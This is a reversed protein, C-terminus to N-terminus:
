TWFPSWTVTTARVAPVRIWSTTMESVSRNRPGSGPRRRGSPASPRARRRDLLVLDSARAREEADGVDPEEAVVIGHQRQALLEDQPHRREDALDPRVHDHGMVRVLEALVAVVVRHGRLQDEVPDARRVADPHAIRIRGVADGLDEERRVREDHRRVHQSALEVPIGVQDDVDGVDDLRLDAREVRHAALSVAAVVCALGDLHDVARHARDAPDGVALAEDGVLGLDLRRKGTESQSSWRAASDSSSRIFRRLRIM